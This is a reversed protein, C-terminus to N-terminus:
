GPRRVLEPTIVGRARLIDRVVGLVREDEERDSASRRRLSAVPAATRPNRAFRAEHRALFAWYLRTIPCSKKPDFACSECHDSMKHIYAAGSVYPKTTMLPGVGYTGMALVNPEVVWDYADVYAVWFWDCLERPRVGLLTAINSAGHPAHHPPEM